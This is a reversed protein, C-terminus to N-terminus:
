AFSEFHTSVGSLPALLREDDFAFRANDGANCFIVRNGTSFTVRCGAIVSHQTREWTDIVTEIGAVTSGLLTNWPPIHTLIIRKWACSEGEGVEFAEPIELSTSRMTISEGDGTIAFTLVSGDHFRLELDGDEEDDPIGNFFVSL